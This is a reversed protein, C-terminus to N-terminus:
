AGEVSADDTVDEEPISDATPELGVEDDGVNDIAAELVSLPVLPEGNDDKPSVVPTVKRAALYAAVIKVIVSVGGVVSILADSVAAQQEDTVAHKTFIAVVTAIVTVLAAVASATLVPQPQKDSL